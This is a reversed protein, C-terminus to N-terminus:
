KAADGILEYIHYTWVEEIVPEDHLYEMQPDQEGVYGGWKRWRWGGEPSMESKLLRVMGVVFRRDSNRVLEVFRPLNFLQAPSDAVGYTGFYEEGDKMNRIDCLDPYENIAGPPFCYNMNFHTTQYIGEFETPRPNPDGDALLGPIAGVGSWNSWPVLTM